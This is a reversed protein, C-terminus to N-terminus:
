GPSSASCPLSRRPPLGVICSHAPPPPHLLGPTRPPRQQGPIPAAVHLPGTHASQALLCSFLGSQPSPVDLSGPSGRHCHPLGRLNSASSHIANQVSSEPPGHRASQLLSQLLGLWPEGHLSAAAQSVAFCVTVLARPVRSQYSVRARCRHIGLKQSLGSKLTARWM